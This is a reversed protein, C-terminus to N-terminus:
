ITRESYYKGCNLPIGGLIIWGYKVAYFKWEFSIENHSRKKLAALITPLADLITVINSARGVINSARLFFTVVRFWNQFSIKKKPDYNNNQVFISNKQWKEFFFGWFTTLHSLFTNSIPNKHAPKANQDCFESNAFVTIKM